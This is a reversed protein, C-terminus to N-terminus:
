GREGLAWFIFGSLAVLFQDRLRFHTLTISALHAFALLPQTSFRGAQPLRLNLSALVKINGLRAPM